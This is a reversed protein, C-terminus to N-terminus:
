GTALADESVTGLQDLMALMDFFHCAEAIKGDSVRVIQCAPVNVRRDTAPIEAGSPLPLPGSQTGQWTIRVAVRDDCGFADTVAGAADPFAAKWAKNVDLIADVGEFRRGTALEEYVSDPAMLERMAEWDASNFADVYGRVPAILEESM